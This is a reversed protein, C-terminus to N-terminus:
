EASNISCRDAPIARISQRMPKFRAKLRAVTARRFPDPRAQLGSIVGTTLTRDLGFPNGIALVKQGVELKDSDGLPIVTLGEQPPEIKIVALDTDPDGGVIKAPYTKDGGLSVNLKTAGEIVHYNTM